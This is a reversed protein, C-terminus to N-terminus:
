LRPVVLLLAILPLVVLMVWPLPVAVLGLVVVLLQGRPSGVVTRNGEGCNVMGGVVPVVIGRARAHVVVVSPPTPLWSYRLVGDSVVPVAFCLHLGIVLM